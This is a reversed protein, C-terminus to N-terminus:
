EESEKSPSKTKTAPYNPTSGTGSLAFCKEHWYRKHKAVDFAVGFNVKGLEEGKKTGCYNCVRRSVKWRGIYMSLRNM